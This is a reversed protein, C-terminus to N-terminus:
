AAILINEQRLQNIFDIVDERIAEPGSEYEESIGNIADSLNQGDILRQWIEAATENLRYFLDDKLNFIRLSDNNLFWVVGSNLKLDFGNYKIYIEKPAVRRIDLRNSLKIPKLSMCIQGFVFFLQVINEIFLHAKEKGKNIQLIRFANITLRWLARIRTLFYKTKSVDPGLIYRYKRFVLHSACGYEFQHLFFNKFDRIHLHYVLSEPIYKMQYGGFSLRWGLETDESTILDEDFLGIEELVDKRFIANATVVRPIEQNVDSDMALKQSLMDREEAFREFINDTKHAVIKGGCAAINDDSEVAEFLIKLWNKDVICDSDTFAIYKGKAVSIGKNRAAGRTRKSEFVYKVPYPSVIEKTEDTSNNDVVIIEREEAPFDLNFLSDLCFAIKQAANYAPVIISVKLNQIDNLSEQVM